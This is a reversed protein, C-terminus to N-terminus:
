IYGKYYAGEFLRAVDWKFLLFNWCTCRWCINWAMITLLAISFVNVYMCLIYCMAVTIDLFYLNFCDLCWFYLFIAGGFIGNQAHVTSFKCIYMSLHTVWTRNLSCIIPDYTEYCHAYCVCGNLIELCLRYVVRATAFILILGNLNWIVNAFDECKKLSVKRKRWYSSTKRSQYTCVHTSFFCSWLRFKLSYEVFRESIHM